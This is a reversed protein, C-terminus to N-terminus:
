GAAATQLATSVITSLASSIVSGLDARIASRDPAAAMVMFSLAGLALVYM